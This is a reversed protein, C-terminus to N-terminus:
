GAKARRAEGSLWREGIGALLCYLTIVGFVWMAAVSQRATINPNAAAVGHGIVILAHAATAGFLWWRDYKLSLWVMVALVLADGVALGIQFRGFTLIQLPYAAAYAVFLCLALAREPRGGKFAALTLVVVISLLFFLQFPAVAIRDTPPPSPRRCAGIRIM